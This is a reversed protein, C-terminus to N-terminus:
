PQGHIHCAGQSKEHLPSHRGLPDLVEFLFVHLIARVHHAVTNAFM